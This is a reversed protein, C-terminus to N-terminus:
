NSYTFDITAIVSKSTGDAVFVFNLGDGSRIVSFAMCTRGFTRRMNIDPSRDKELAESIIEELKPPLNPCPCHDDFVFYFGHVLLLLDAVVTRFEFGFVSAPVDQKM